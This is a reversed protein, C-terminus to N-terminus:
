ITIHGKIVTVSKGALDVRGDDRITVKIGGGRLSCQYCNLQKEGLVKCWYPGLVTHASGTVPDEPIGNWPAFYRSLAHYDGNSKNGRLTLIIGKVLSGDHVQLLKSSDVVLNELKNRPCTDKLRVLLKKTTKSLQVEEVELRADGSAKMTVAEILPAVAVSEEQTLLGPSNAPFDLIIYEGSRRALLIGSLTEFEIVACTNGLCHFLVHAASLTAHGCLPVENTPTFWRLSFRSSNFSDVGLPVVFATESINLEMAIKQQVDESLKQKTPVVAAPNGGFTKSSFADVTYLPLKM